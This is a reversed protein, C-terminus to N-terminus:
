MRGARVPPGGNARESPQPPQRPSRADTVLEAAPAPAPIPPSGREALKRVRRGVFAQTRLAAAGVSPLPDSASLMPFHQRRMLSRAWDAPSIEGRRGHALLGRLDSVPHWLTVGTRYGALPPLERGTLRNYALLPIDIGARRVQDVAATFRANCEILRYSGDRADRKFEVNGIGRLGVGQFFRLGLKAVEPNWDTVQYTGLGFAPPWQRLKRKTFHFLPEGDGDLYSYYSCLQDDGGPVIETVLMQLGLGLTREIERRLEDRDNVVILKKLIGFHNAFEHSSLPKLACPYGIQEAALEAEAATWVATTRPAPVGISRALAYTRQKDLMDLLAFDDAEVPLYGWAELEPRHLAIMELGEDDCPLIVGKRPGARLWDLYREQVGDKAGVEVFM